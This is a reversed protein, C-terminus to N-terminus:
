MPPVPHFVHDTTDYLLEDDAFLKGEVAKINRGKSDVFSEGKYGSDALTSRDGNMNAWQVLELETDRRKQYNLLETNVLHNEKDFQPVYFIRGGTFAAFYEASFNPLKSVVGVSEWQGKGYVDYGYAFYLGNPSIAATKADIQKGLLWQGETFTDTDLNWLILEWEKRQASQRLIVATNADSALYLHLKM